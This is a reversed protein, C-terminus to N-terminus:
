LANAIVEAPSAGELRQSITAVSKAADGELVIDYVEGEQAPMNRESMNLRRADPDHRAHELAWGSALGRNHRRCPAVWGRGLHWLGGWVPRDLRPGSRVPLGIHASWLILSFGVPWRM